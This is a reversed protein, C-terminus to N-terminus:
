PFVFELPPHIVKGERADDDVIFPAVAQLSAVNAVRVREYRDDDSFRSLYWPLHPNKPGWMVDYPGVLYWGPSSAVCRWGYRDALPQLIALDSAVLESLRDTCANVDGASSDADAVPDGDPHISKGWRAHDEVIAAAAFQLSAASAVEVSGDPDDDSVRSLIWPRDPTRSMWLLDYPGVLYWGLSSAVRGWGYRDALPQLIALDSAVSESWRDTCTHVDGASSDAAAVPNGDLGDIFSHTM